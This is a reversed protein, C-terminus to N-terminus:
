FGPNTLIESSGSKSLSFNHSDIRAVFFCTKFDNQLVQFPQLFVVAFRKKTQAGRSTRLLFLPKEGLCREVSPVKESACFSSFWFDDNQSDGNVMAACRNCENDVRSPASFM